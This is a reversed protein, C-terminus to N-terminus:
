RSSVEEGEEEEEGGRRGGGGRRTEGQRKRLARTERETEGEIQKM